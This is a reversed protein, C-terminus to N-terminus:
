SDRSTCKDGNPAGAALGSCVGTQLIPVFRYGCSPPHHLKRLVLFRMQLGKPHWGPASFSCFNSFSHKRLTGPPSRVFLMREHAAQPRPSGRFRHEPTPPFVNQLFVSMDLFYLFVAKNTVRKPTVQSGFDDQLRNQPSETLPQFLPPEVTTVLIM